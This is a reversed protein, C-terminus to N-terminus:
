PQILYWAEEVSITRRRKKMNIGDTGGMAYSLYVRRKPLSIYVIHIINMIDIQMNKIEFISFEVCTPDGKKEDWAVQRPIAM